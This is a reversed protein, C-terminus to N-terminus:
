GITRLMQGLNSGLIWHCGKVGPQWLFESVFFHNESGSNFLTGKIEVSFTHWPKAMFRRIQRMFQYTYFINTLHTM